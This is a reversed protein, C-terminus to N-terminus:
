GEDLHLTGNYSGGKKCFHIYVRYTKGNRDAYLSSIDRIKDGISARLIELMEDIEEKTGQLRIKM